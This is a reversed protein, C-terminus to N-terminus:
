DHNHPIGYSDDHPVVMDPRQLQQKPDSFVESWRASAFVLEKIPHM